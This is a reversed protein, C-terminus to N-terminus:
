IIIIIIIIISSLPHGLVSHVVPTQNGASAPFKKEGSRGSRGQAWGVEQENPPYISHVTAGPYLKELM